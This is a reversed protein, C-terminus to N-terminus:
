YLLLEGTLKRKLANLEHELKKVSDSTTNSSFKLELNIRASEAALFSFCHFIVLSTSFLTSNRPYFFSIM